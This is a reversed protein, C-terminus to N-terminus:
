LACKSLLPWPLISWAYEDRIMLNTCVYEYMHIIIIHFYACQRTRRQFKTNKKENQPSTNKKTWNPYSPWNPISIWHISGNLKLMIGLSTYALLIKSWILSTHKSYLLLNAHLELLISVCIDRILSFLM